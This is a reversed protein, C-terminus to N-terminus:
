RSVDLDPVTSQLGHVTVIPNDSQIGEGRSLCSNAAEGAGRILLRLSKSRVIKRFKKQNESWRWWKGLWGRGWVM